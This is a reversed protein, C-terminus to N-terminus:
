PSASLPERQRARSADLAQRQAATQVYQVSRYENLTWFEATLPATKAYAYRSPMLGIQIFVIRTLTASLAAFLESITASGKIAEQGRRIAAGIDERWEQDAVAVTSTIAM